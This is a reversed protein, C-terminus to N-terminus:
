TQNEQSNPGTLGNRNRSEVIPDFGRAISAQSGRLIVHIGQPILCLGFAFSDADGRRLRFLLWGVSNMVLFVGGYVWMMWTKSGYEWGPTLFNSIAVIVVVGILAQYILAIIIVGLGFLIAIGREM